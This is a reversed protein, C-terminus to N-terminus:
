VQSKHLQVWNAVDRALLFLRGTNKSSVYSRITPRFEDKCQSAIVKMLTNGKGVIVAVDRHQWKGNWLTSRNNQSFEEFALRVAAKAMHSSHGHLDIQRNQRYLNEYPKVVRNKVAQKYLDDVLLEQGGEGLCEMLSGYMEVSTKSSRSAFFDEGAEWDEGTEDEEEEAEDGEGEDKEDGEAEEEEKEEQEVMGRPLPVSNETSTASTSGGELQMLEYISLAEKWAGRKACASIAANYTYVNRRIGKEEMMDFLALAEDMKAAAACAAIASTCVVTNLSHGVKRMQDLLFLAHEWDKGTECARLCSSFM